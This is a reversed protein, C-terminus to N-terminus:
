VTLVVKGRPKGNEAMEFAEKVKEIPYTHEILPILKGELFLQEVAAYDEPKARMNAATLKKNFILKVFPSSFSKPPFFLTSLYIGKKNLIKCVTDFKMMGYADFVIDFTKELQNLDRVTYDIVEDAGLQKALDINPTGCVATVIAGNAKALQVMFHGVGGTAGNILLSKNQLGNSKRVGTQATLAAVPISAAQEFSMGEPILRIRKPSIILYECLGGTKGTFISINGYVNDGKKFGSVTKGIEEVIGSFDAGTLKPFTNGSVFKLVGQRIKYDVPNISVAKVKIKVTDDTLVPDPFEGYEMVEPGGYRKYFAAKM